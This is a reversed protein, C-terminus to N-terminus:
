NTYIYIYLRVSCDLEWDLPFAQEPWPWHINRRLTEWQLYHDPFCLCALFTLWTTETIKKDHNLITCKSNVSSSGETQVYDLPSWQIFQYGYRCGLRRIEKWKRQLFAPCRQVRKRDTCAIRSCTEFCFYIFSLSRSRSWNRLETYCVQALIIPGGQPAFLNESKVMNIIKESYRKM